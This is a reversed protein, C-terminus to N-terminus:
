SKREKMFVIDFLYFYGMMGNGIVIMNPEYSIIRFMWDDKYVPFLITHGLKPCGARVEDNVFHLNKYTFLLKTVM